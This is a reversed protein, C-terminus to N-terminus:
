PILAGWSTLILGLAILLVSISETRLGAGALASVEKESKEAADVRVQEVEERLAEVERVQDSVSDRVKQILDLNQETRVRVAEWREDPDDHWAPFSTRVTLTGAGASVAAAAAQVTVDQGRGFLRLVRAKLREAVRSM